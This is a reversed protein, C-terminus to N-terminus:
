FEYLTITFFNRMGITLVSLWPTLNYTMSSNCTLLYTLLMSASLDCESLQKFKTYSSLNVVYSSKDSLLRVHNKFFYISLQTQFSMKFLFM